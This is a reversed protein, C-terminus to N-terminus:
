ACTTPRQQQFLNRRRDRRANGIPGAFAEFGGGPYVAFATTSNTLGVTNEFGQTANQNTVKGTLL